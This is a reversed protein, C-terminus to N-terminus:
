SDDERSREHGPRTHSPPDSAPFTQRLEKDLEDEEKQKKSKDQKEPNKKEDSM